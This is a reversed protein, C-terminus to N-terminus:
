KKLSKSNSVPFQIVNDLTHPMEESKALKCHNFGLLLMKNCLRQDTEDVYEYCYERYFLYKGESNKKIGMKHLSVADDLHQHGAKECLRRSHKLAIDRALMNKLIFWLLLCIILFTIVAFPTM